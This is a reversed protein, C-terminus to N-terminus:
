GKVENNLWSTRKHMFKETRKRPWREAISYNSQPHEEELCERRYIMGGLSPTWETSYLEGSVVDLKVGPELEILNTEVQKEELLPLQTAM